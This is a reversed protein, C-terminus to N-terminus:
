FNNFIKSKEVIAGKWVRANDNGVAISLYKEGSPAIYINRGDIEEGDRRLENILENVKKEIIARMETSVKINTLAADINKTISKTVEEIKPTFSPVEQATVSTWLLGLALIGASLTSSKM